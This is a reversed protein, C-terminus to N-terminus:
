VQGRARRLRKRLAEVGQAVAGRTQGGIRGATETLRELGKGLETRAREVQARRRENRWGRAAVEGLQALERGLGVLLDDLTVMGVPRGDELIPIRRVGNAKMKKLIEALPELRESSVLPSSMIASALTTALPRGSAVARVALDRDTLIGVAQGARNVVVVCGTCEQKMQAAVDALTADAPASVVERIYTRATRSDATRPSTAGSVSDAAPAQAAVVAALGSTEFAILRALDDVAIIGIGPDNADVVPLRRVGKRHMLGIAESLVADRSIEVVPQTMAEAVCSSEPDQMPDALHLVLDRDTLVGLSGLAGDRVLLMGVQEKDMQDAAARLSSNPHVARISTGCGAAVTMVGRAQTPVTSRSEDPLQPASAAPKLVLVESSM